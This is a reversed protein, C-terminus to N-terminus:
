VWCCLLLLYYLSFLIWSLPWIDGDPKSVVWTSNDTSHKNLSHSSSVKNKPHPNLHKHHRPKQVMSATVTTTPSRILTFESKVSEPMNTYGWSWIYMTDYWYWILVYSLTWLQKSRVPPWIPGIEAKFRM